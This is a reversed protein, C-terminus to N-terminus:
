NSEKIDSSQNLSTINNDSLEITGYYKPDNSIGSVGVLWDQVTGENRRVAVTGIDKVKANLLLFDRVVTANGSGEKSIISNEIFEIKKEAPVPNMTIICVCSRIPAGTILFKNRNAILTETDLKNPDEPSVTLRFLHEMNEADCIVTNGEIRQGGYVLTSYVMSMPNNAEIKSKDDNKVCEFRNDIMECSMKDTVFASGAFEEFTFDNGKIVAKTGTPLLQFFIVGIDTVNVINDNIEYSVDENGRRLYIAMSPKPTNIAGEFAPLFDPNFTIVNGNLSLKGRQGQVHVANYGTSSIENNVIEANDL